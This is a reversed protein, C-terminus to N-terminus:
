PGQEGLAPQRLRPDRGRMDPLPAGLRPQALRQDVFAGAPQLPDARRQKIVADRGRGLLQQAGFAAREQARQRQWRRRSLRISTANAIM